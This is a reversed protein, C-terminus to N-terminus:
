KQNKYLYNLLTQAGFGNGNNCLPAKGGNAHDFAGAIDLHVWQVGSEIFKELFAAARCSGGFPTRQSNILDAVLSVTQDKSEDPIPLRWCKEFVESGCRIIENAFDDNNSFLGATELGLAIRM